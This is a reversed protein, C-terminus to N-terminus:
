SAEDEEVEEYEELLQTEPDWTGYPVWAPRLKALEADWEEGRQALLLNKEGNYAGAADFLFTEGDFEVEELELEAPEAGGDTESNVARLQGDVLLLQILVVVVEQTAM